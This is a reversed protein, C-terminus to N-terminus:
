NCGLAIISGNPLGVTGTQNFFDGIVFSQVLDNTGSAQDVFSASFTLLETGQYGTKLGTGTVEVLCNNGRNTCEVTAIETGTFAPGVVFMFSTDPANDDTDTFVLRLTSTELTDVCINAMYTLTGRETDNQGFRVNIDEASGNVQVGCSCRVGM